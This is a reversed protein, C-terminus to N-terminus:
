RVERGGKVFGLDVSRTDLVGQDFHLVAEGKLRPCLSMNM